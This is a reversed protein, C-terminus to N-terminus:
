PVSGPFDSKVNLYDDTEGALDICCNKYKLGSGCLCRDNRGLEARSTLKALTRMDAPQYGSWNFLFGALKMRTPTAICAIEACMRNQVNIVISIIENLSAGGYKGVVECTLRYDIVSIDPPIDHAEGIDGHGVVFWRVERVEETKVSGDPFLVKLFGHPAEKYFTRNEVVQEVGGTIERYAKLMEKTSDPEIVWKVEFLALLGERQDFVATDVDGVTKGPLDKLTRRTSVRFGKAAFTRGFEDALKAKKQAVAKNYETPYRQVWNRLLCVEWNTTFVLSPAIILEDTGPVAILPQILIDPHRVQTDLVLDSLIDMVKKRDISVRPTLIDCLTQLNLQMVIPKMHHSEGTMEFRKRQIFYVSAALTMFTKWFSDCEEVTYTSCKTTPEITRPPIVGGIISKMPYYIGDPISSIPLTMDTSQMLKQVEATFEHEPYDLAWRREVSSKHLPSNKHYSQLSFNLADRGPQTGPPDTFTVERGNVSGSLMNQHYLIFPTSIFDYRECFTIAEHALSLAEEDLSTLQGAKSQDCHEFLKPILVALGAKLFLLPVEFATISQPVINHPQWRLEFAQLTHLIATYLPLQYIRLHDLASDIHKEISRIDQPLPESYM